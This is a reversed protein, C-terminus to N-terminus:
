PTSEHAQASAEAERLTRATVFDVMGPRPAPRGDLLAAECQALNERWRDRDPGDPLALVHAVELRTASAAPGDGPVARIAQAAADDANM